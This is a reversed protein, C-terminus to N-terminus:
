NELTDSLQVTEYFMDDMDDLRRHKQVSRITRRRHRQIKIDSPPSIYYMGRGLTRSLCCSRSKSSLFPLVTFSM